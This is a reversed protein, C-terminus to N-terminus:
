HLKVTGLLKGGVNDALFEETIEGFFMARITGVTFSLFIAMIFGFMLVKKKQPAYATLPTQAITIIQISTKTTYHDVNKVFYKAVMNAIEASNKATTSTATISFVPDAPSYTLGYTANGIESINNIAKTSVLEKNLPDRFSSNELVLKRYVPFQSLDGRTLLQTTAQYTKPTQFLYGITILIVIVFAGGMWWLSHRYISWIKKM